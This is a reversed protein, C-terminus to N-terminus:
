AVAGSGVRACPVGNHACEAIAKTNECGVCASVAIRSFRVISVGVVVEVETVSSNYQHLAHQNSSPEAYRNGQGVLGILKCIVYVGCVLVSLLLASM